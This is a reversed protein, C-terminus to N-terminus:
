QAFHKGMIKYIGKPSSIEIEYNENSSIELAGSQLASIIEM